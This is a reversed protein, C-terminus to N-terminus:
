RKVKLLNRLSGGHEVPANGGSEVIDRIRWGKADRVMDYRLVTRKRDGERLFSVTAAASRETSPGMEIKLASFYRDQANTFPAGNLLPEQDGRGDKDLADALAPEFYRVVESKKALDIGPSNKTRYRKKYIDEILAQPSAFQAVAAPAAAMVALFAAGFAFAVRCPM